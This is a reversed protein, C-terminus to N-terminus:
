HRSAGSEQRAGDRRQCDARDLRTGARCGHAQGADVRCGAGRPPDIGLSAVVGSRDSCPPHCALAHEAQTCWAMKRKAPGRGRGAGGELWGGITVSPTAPLPGQTGALGLAAAVIVPSVARERQEGREIDRGALGDAATVLAVRGALERLEQARDIGLHRAIEVHMQHHVVVGRVVGAIRAQSALRGCNCTWRVGVDAEQSLWISRKKASSVL